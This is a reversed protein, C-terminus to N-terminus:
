PQVIFQDLLKYANNEMKLLVVAVPAYDAGQPTKLTIRVRLFSSKQTMLPVTSNGLLRTADASAIAGRSRTSQLAKVQAEDLGGLVRFLLLPSRNIELQKLQTGVLVHDHVGRVLHQPLAPIHRLEHLSTSGMGGQNIVISQKTLLVAKAYSAILKTDKEGLASFLRQWEAEDLRNADPIIGADEMQVTASFGAFELTYPSEEAVWLARREAAELPRTAAQRQAQLGVNLRAVTYHAMGKLAYEEQLRDKDQVTRQADLRLTSSMGLALVAVVALVGLVFLLIYGGEGQPLPSPHPNLKM